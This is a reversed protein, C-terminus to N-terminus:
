RLTSASEGLLTKRELVVTTAGEPIGEILAHLQAVRAAFADRREETVPDAPPLSLKKPNVWKGNMKIRYDLHPATAWGTSGVYGIIDGQKVRAGVKLGRPYKSLHLYYSEYGNGHRLGVTNGSARDYARRIVTGDATAMIPTGTPAVYDVGWHPQYRKTVPHLRRYTFGSSIRTYKLPARLFQRELSTGDPSYYAPLGLENTFRYAEHLHGRNRFSVALVVPDRVTDDEHLYEQYVVVFSDGRRLDRFFDIKWGLIEAMQDALAPDAGQAKLADFLNTEIIGRAARTSEEIPYREVEAVIGDEDRSLILYRERALDFRLASFQGEPRSLLFRDGRQVRKLNTHPQCAKVLSMITAHDLGVRRLAVYFSEGRRIRIEEWDALRIRAERPTETRFGPESDSTLFTPGDDPGGQAPDAPPVDSRVVTTPTPLEQVAVPQGSDPAAPDFGGLSWYILGLAVLSLGISAYRPM